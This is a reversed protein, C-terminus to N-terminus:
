RNGELAAQYDPRDILEDRRAYEAPELHKKGFVYWYAERTMGDYHIISYQYQRTQFLNLFILLLGLGGALLGSWRAQLAKQLLAGLPFALFAYYHVFARHGFSGGFWWDWWSSVLFWVCIFILTLPLALPRYHRWLPVFGILMFLALPTYILWGKRWSLMVDLLHPDNFHFGEESGYSFVLWHGTLWHWYFLQPLIPIFLIVVALLIPLAKAKLLRLRQNLSTKDYVGYLLPFLACLLATPRILTILGLLFALLFLWGNKQQGRHFRLSAYIFIAFLMFLYSHPMEGRELTYYFLNSAFFVLAYTIAALWPKLFMQLSLLVFLAAVLSYILSGYHICRDFFYGYGDPNSEEQLWCAAAFWPAYFYAMGMTVKPVQKGNRGSKTWYQHDYNFDPQGELFFAPLYSYYQDVDYSFITPQGLRNVWHPASLLYFLALGFIVAAISGRASNIHM